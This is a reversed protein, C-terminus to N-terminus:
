HAVQKRQYLTAWGHPSVYVVSYARALIPAIQRLPSDADIGGTQWVIIYQADAPDPRIDNRWRLPFYTEGAEYNSLDIAGCQTTVYGAASLFPRLKHTFRQGDPLYDDTSAMVPM